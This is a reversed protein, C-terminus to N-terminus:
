RRHAESTKADFVIIEDIEDLIKEKRISAILDILNKARSKMEARETYAM